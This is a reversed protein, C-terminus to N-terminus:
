AQAKAMVAIAQLSTSASSPVSEVLSLAPPLLAALREATTFAALNNSGELADFRVAWGHSALEAQLGAAGPHEPDHFTLLLRGGPKLLRELEALWAQASAERLHTLVSCGYALDFTGAPLLTPPALATRRYEGPLASACWRLLRQHRRRRVARRGARDLALAARLRLGM